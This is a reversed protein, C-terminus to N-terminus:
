ATFLFAHNPNPPTAAQNNTAHPPVTFKCSSSSVAPPEGPTAPVNPSMSMSTAPEAGIKLEDAPVALVSLPPLVVPGMM